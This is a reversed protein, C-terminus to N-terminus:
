RKRRVIIDISYIYKKDSILTSVLRFLRSIGIAHPYIEKTGRTIKWWKNEQKRVRIITKDRYM